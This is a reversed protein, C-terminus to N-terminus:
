ILRTFKEFGESLTVNVHGAGTSFGTFGAKEPPVALVEAEICFIASTKVFLVPNGPVAM